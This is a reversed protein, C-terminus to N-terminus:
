QRNWFKFPCKKKPEEKILGWSKNPLFLKLLSHNLSKRIIKEPIDTKELTIDELYNNLNKFRVIGLPEGRRIITKEQHFKFAFLAPRFWRSFPFEGGILEAGHKRIFDPVPLIELWISKSNDKSWFVLQQKTQGIAVGNFPAPPRHVPPGDFSFNQMGPPNGEDFTFYKFAENDVIGTEKDYTVEMDIQSFFVYANKFSKQWAPCKWYDHKVHQEKYYELYPIPQLYVEDEFLPHDFPMSYGEMKPAFFVTKM